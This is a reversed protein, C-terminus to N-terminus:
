DCIILSNQEIMEIFLVAYCNITHTRLASLQTVNPLNDKKRGRVHLFVLGQRGANTIFITVKNPQFSRALGNGVNPYLAASSRAKGLACLASLKDRWTDRGSFAWFLTPLPSHPPEVVKVLLYNKLVIPSQFIWQPKWCTMFIGILKELSKFSFKNVQSSFM